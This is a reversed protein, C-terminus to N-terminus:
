SRFYAPGDLDAILGPPGPRWGLREQTLRSSAPNDWGVFPALWSFRSAAQAPTVSLAPVRLRRGIVEAIQRFPVGEDAVGHYSAGAEGRELALRFLVAADLRRVGSWRNSGDGIYASTKRKRAIAILQPVLGKDGDGHVSPALRVVTARVGRDAWRRVVDETQSRVFGPAHPDPRDDECALRGEAMGMAAFTTVLPRGSGELAAGLADIARRDTQTIAAGFRSVIGSPAGGLILRLRPLLPIDGPGHIFALHIVGDAAAAGRRLGNPDQLSGPVAKAGLKAMTQASRESRALGTVDYGAQVLERVVAQGIYGTAGTVFVRMAERLLKSRRVM